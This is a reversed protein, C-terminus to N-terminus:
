AITSKEAAMLPMGASIMSAARTSPAVSIRTKKLIMIGYMMPVIM